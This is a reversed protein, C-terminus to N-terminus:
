GGSHSHSEGPSLLLGNHPTGYWGERVDDVAFECAPRLVPLSETLFVLFQEILNKAARPPLERGVKIGHPGDRELADDHRDDDLLSPHHAVQLLTECSELFFDVPHSLPCDSLSGGM